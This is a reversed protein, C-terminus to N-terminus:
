ALCKVSTHSGAFYKCEEKLYKQVWYLFFLWIDSGPVKFLSGHVKLWHESACPVM